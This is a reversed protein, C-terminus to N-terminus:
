NLNIWSWTEREYLSERKYKQIARFINSQNPGFRPLPYNLHQSLAKRLDETHTALAQRSNPVLSFLEKLGSYDLVKSISTGLCQSHVAGSLAGHIAYVGNPQDEGITAWQLFLGLNRSKNPNGGGQIYWDPIVGRDLFLKVGERFGSRWAQYPSGGIHTVGAIGGMQLYSPDWCFDVVETDPPAAEHTAMQQVFDVSWLKLGGNGYALGNISNISRWSFTLGKLPVLDEATSVFRKALQILDAQWVWEFITTDGDITFFHTAHADLRLALKCAQKHAADFGVVGHSRATLPLNRKELDEWNADANPEDFSIFIVPLEAFKIM